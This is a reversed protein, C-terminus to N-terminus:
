NDNNRNIFGRYCMGFNVFLFLFLFIIGSKYIVFSIFTICLVTLYIFSLFDLEKMGFELPSIFVVFVM